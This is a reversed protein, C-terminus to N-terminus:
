REGVYHVEFLKRTYVKDVMRVKRVALPGTHVRVIRCLTRLHKAAAVVGGEFVETNGTHEVSILHEKPSKGLPTVYHYEDTIDDGVVLVRFSQVSNILGLVSDMTM